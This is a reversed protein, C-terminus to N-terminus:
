SKLLEELADTATEPETAPEAAARPAGAPPPQSPVLSLGKYFGARTRRAAPAWQRILQRLRQDSLGDTSRYRGHPPYKRFADSVDNFHCNGKKQLKLDAWKAFVEWNQEREQVEEVTLKRPRGAEFIGASFLLGMGSSVSWTAEGLTAEFAAAAAAGAAATVAVACLRVGVPPEYGVAATDVGLARSLRAMFWDSPREAEIGGLFLLVM